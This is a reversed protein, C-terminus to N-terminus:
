KQFIIKGGRKVKFIDTNSVYVALGLEVGAELVNTVIGEGNSYYVRDQKRIDM